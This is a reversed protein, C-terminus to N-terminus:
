DLLNYLVIFFCSLLDTIVMRHSIIDSVATWGDIRKATEPMEEMSITLVSRKDQKKKGNKIM